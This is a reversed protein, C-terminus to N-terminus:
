TAASELRALAVRTEAPQPVALLREFAVAAREPSLRAALLGLRTADEARLQDGAFVIWHQPQALLKDIRAPSLDGDFVLRWSGEYPSNALQDVAAGVLDDARPMLSAAVLAPLPGTASFALLREHVRATAEADLAAIVARVDALGFGEDGFSLRIGPMYRDGRPGCFLRLYAEIATPADAWLVCLRVAWNLTARSNLEPRKAYMGFQAATAFL